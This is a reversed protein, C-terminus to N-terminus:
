VGEELVPRDDRRRQSLIPVAEFSGPGREANVCADIQACEGGHQRCIKNHTTHPNTRRADCQWQLDARTLANHVREPSNAIFESTCGRRFPKRVVASVTTFLGCLGTRIQGLTADMGSFKARTLNGSSGKQTRQHISMV